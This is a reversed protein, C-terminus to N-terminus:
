GLGNKVGQKLKIEVKEVRSEDHDVRHSTYRITGAYLAKEFAELETSKNIVPHKLKQRLDQITDTELVLQKINEELVSACHKISEINSNEKIEQIKLDVQRQFEEILNNEKLIAVLIEDKIIKLDSDYRRIQTNLNNLEILSASINEWSEM